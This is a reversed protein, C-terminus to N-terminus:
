LHFPEPGSLLNSRILHHWLTFLTAMLPKDSSPAPILYAVAFRKMHITRGTHPHQSVEDKKRSACPGVPLHSEVKCNHSNDFAQANIKLGSGGSEPM